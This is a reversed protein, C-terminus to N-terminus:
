ESLLADIQEKLSRVERELAAIEGLDQRPQSRVARLQAQAAELEARLAEIEDAQAVLRQEATARQRASADARQRAAIARQRASAAEALQQEALSRLQSTQREYTGSQLASAACGLNDYRPDGVCASSCAGLISVVIAVPIIGLVTFLQRGFTSSM